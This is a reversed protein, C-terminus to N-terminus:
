DNHEYQQRWQQLRLMNANCSALANTQTLSHKLLDLNSFGIFRPNDCLELWDPPPLVYVTKTLTVVKVIPKSSCSCLM